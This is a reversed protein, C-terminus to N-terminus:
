WKELIKHLTYDIFNNNEKVFNKFNLFDHENDISLRVSNLNKKNEYNLIKFLKPNKYIFRTVHEKEEPTLKKQNIIELASSSLIEVSQGIPFTRPFINTVLHYNRNKLFLEYMKNVLNFDILPSDASIRIVADLNKKKAFEFYRLFVNNLNGRFFNVNNKKCYKVIRLDSKELSTLVYIKEKLRTKKLRELVYFLMPYGNVKKMVKNPLRTSNLRAQIGLFVNM